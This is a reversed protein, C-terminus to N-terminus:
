RTLAAVPTLDGSDFVVAADVDLDVVERVAAAEAVGYVEDVDVVM